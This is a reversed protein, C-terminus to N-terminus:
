PLIETTRCQDYMWDILYRIAVSICISIPKLQKYHITEGRVQCHKWKWRGPENWETNRGLFSPFIFHIITTDGSQTIWPLKNVSSRGASISHSFFISAGLLVSIIDFSVDGIGM